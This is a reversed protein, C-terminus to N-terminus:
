ETQFKVQISLRSLQLQDNNRLLREFGAELRRGNLFTGNSSGLDAVYALTGKRRIGVHLRSIGAEWANYPELDVDPQLADPGLGRRGVTVRNAIPLRVEASGIQLVIWTQGTLIAEGTVPPPSRHADVLLVAPSTTDPDLLDKGCRMCTTQNVMAPLSCVPCVLRYAQKAAIQALLEARQSKSLQPTLDDEEFASQEHQGPKM